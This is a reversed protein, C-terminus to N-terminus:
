DAGALLRQYYVPLNLLGHLAGAERVANRAGDFRVSEGTWRPERDVRMACVFCILGDLQNDSEAMGTNAIVIDARSRKLAGLALERTVEISTLGYTDITEGSVGLVDMKAEPAYVVFGVELAAGSGSVDAFHGAMLGATCSEATALRLAHDRLFQLVGEIDQAADISRTMFAGM